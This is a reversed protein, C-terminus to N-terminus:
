VEDFVANGMAAVIADYAEWSTPEVFFSQLELHGEYKKEEEGKKRITAGKLQGEPNFFATIVGGHGSPGEFGSVELVTGWTKVGADWIGGNGDAGNEGVVNIMIGNLTKGQSFIGDDKDYEENFKASVGSDSLLMFVNFHLDPIRSPRAKIENM